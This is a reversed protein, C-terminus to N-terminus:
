ELTLVKDYQLGSMFKIVLVAMSYVLLKCSICLILTYYICFSISVELRLGMLQVWVVSAM